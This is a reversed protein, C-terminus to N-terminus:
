SEFTNYLWHLSKISARLHKKRSTAKRFFWIISDQYTIEQSELISWVIEFEKLRTSKAM